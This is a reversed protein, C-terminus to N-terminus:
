EASEGGLSTVMIMWPGHRETLKYVKHRDADIKASATVPCLMAVVIAAVFSPLLRRPHFSFPPKRVVSEMRCAVSLSRNSNTGCPHPSSVPPISPRSHLLRPRLPGSRNGAQKEPPHAVGM